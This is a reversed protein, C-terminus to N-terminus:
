RGSRRGGPLRVAALAFAAAVVGLLVHAVAGAPSDATATYLPAQLLLGAILSLRATALAVAEEEDILVDILLIILMPVVLLETNRVEDALPWVAGAVLLATAGAGFWTARGAKGARWRLVIRAAVVLVLVGAAALEMPLREDRSSTDGTKPIVVEVAIAALAVATWVPLVLRERLTRAPVFTVMVAIVILFLGMPLFLSGNRSLALVGLPLATAGLAIGQAIASERSGLPVVALTLVAAVSVALWLVYFFPLNVFTANSSGSQRLVAYGVATMMAALLALARVTWLWPRAPGSEPSATSSAAATAPDTRAPRPPVPLAANGASTPPHATPPPSAPVAASAAGASTAPHSSPAPQTPTGAPSPVPPAWATGVSTAPPTPPPPPAAPPSAAGAADPGTLGLANAAATSVRRSDDDVLQRLALGAALALGEHRANLLRTLERVAGERVGSVTSDIAGQLDQPLPTPKSVPKGRRAIRLEGQLDFTWKGPTQNPTARRVRQYVYEYLEDLGVHGDQDLDAEGTEMGEVLASTFVSPGVDAAEKLEQGEFAFEMASSATIIARGHGGFQENVAVNGGARPVMGRGVAGSYCCDLFLVIRRSRSRNMRRNVFDAAVATAGLRNLKTATAALYLEGAEDKIGHGSYHLVLLDDPDRDAFLDEVAENITAAPENLLTQVEFGGIKPDRLVAALRRADHAPARLQRLGPDQYDYNAIILAHRNGDKRDDQTSAHRRLWVAALVRQEETPKGSMELVDGDIELRVSRQRRQGLWASVANIIAALVQSQSLTLILTGLAALEISRTGPPPEGTSAGSVPVRLEALESRLRSTLEELHHDDSGEDSIRLTVQISTDAM